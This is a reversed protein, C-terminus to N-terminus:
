HTMTYVQLWDLELAMLTLSAGLIFVSGDSNIRYHMFTFHTTDLCKENKDSSAM